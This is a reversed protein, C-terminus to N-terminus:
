RQDNVPAIAQAVRANVIRGTPCNEGSFGDSGDSTQFGNERRSGGAHTPPSPREVRIRDAGRM